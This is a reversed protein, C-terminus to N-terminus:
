GIDRKSRGRVRERGCKKLGRGVDGAWRKREKEGGEVGVKGKKRRERRREYGKQTVHKYRKEQEQVM